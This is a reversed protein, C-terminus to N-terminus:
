GTAEDLGLSVVCVGGLAACRQNAFQMDRFEVAFSLESRCLVRDKLKM